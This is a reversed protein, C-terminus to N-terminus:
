NIVLSASFMIAFRDNTFYSTQLDAIQSFDLPYAVAIGANINNFSIINNIGVAPELLGKSPAQLNWEELINSNKNVVGWIGNIQGFFQPSSFPLRFLPKGFIYRAGMLAYANALYTNPPITLFAETFYFNSGWTGSLDFMRSLPVRGGSIGTQGFLNLNNKNEYHWKRSYQGILRYYKYNDIHSNHTQGLVLRVQVRNSYRYQLMLESHKQINDSTQSGTPYILNDHNFLPFEHSYSLAFDLFHQPKPSTTSQLSVRQFSQYRSSYYDYNQQINVISYTNMNRSAIREIDNSYRINYTTKFKNRTHYTLGGGFKGRRDAVGYGVYGDIGIQSKNENDIDRTYYLGLGWRTGEYISYNFLRNVDIYLANPHKMVPIHVYQCYSFDHIILVFLLLVICAYLRKTARHCYRVPTSWKINQIINTQM